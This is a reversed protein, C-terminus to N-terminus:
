HAGSTVANRFQTKLVTFAREHTVVWRAWLPCVTPVGLCIRTHKPLSSGQPRSHTVQCTDTDGEEHGACLTHRTIAGDYWGSSNCKDTAFRKVKAEQM